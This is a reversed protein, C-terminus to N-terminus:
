SWRSKEKVVTVPRQALFDELEMFVDCARRLEDAIMSPQTKISSVVTVKCGMRKLAQVLYTFDGDGTFLWIDKCHSAAERADVAMEIDMNGKVKRRGTASDFFEKADKKVITYGNYEMWDLMPKISSYQGDPLIATYYNIRLLDKGFIDRVVKFDIEVGLAKSTSYLNAGDVFVSIM